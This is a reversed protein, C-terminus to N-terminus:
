LLQAVVHVIRNRHHRSEVDSLAVRVQNRHRRALVAFAVHRVTEHEDVGAIAARLLYPPRHHTGDRREPHKRQRVAICVVDAPRHGDDLLELRLWLLESGLRIEPSVLHGVHLLPGLLGVAAQFLDSGDLTNEV